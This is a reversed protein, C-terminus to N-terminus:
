ENMQMANSNADQMMKFACVYVDDHRAFPTQLQKPNRTAETDARQKRFSAFHVLFLLSFCPLSLLLLPQPFSHRHQYSQPRFSHLYSPALSYTRRRFSFFPSLPVLTPTNYIACASNM